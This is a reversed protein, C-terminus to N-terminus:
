NESRRYLVTVINKITTKVYEFIRKETKIFGELKINTDYNELKELIKM